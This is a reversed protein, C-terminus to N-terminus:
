NPLLSSGMLYEDISRAAKRGEAIAWVVLSAGRRADGAAYVGELSTAYNDNTVINGRADLRAGTKEILGHRTVGAFGIAILVLDADLTFESDPVPEFGPSPGVRVGHLKKVVDNEGSFSTTAVAFERQGNEEHAPEERYMVPWLPWPTSEAREDPPRQHIMFQRISKAGQRTATGLCDAGTDGGGIIIVHKGTAMIQGEVSDGAVARNSQPLYEMAFHVGKLNRGPANVDRHQEAGIAMLVADFQSRL